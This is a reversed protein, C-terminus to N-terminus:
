IETGGVLDEPGIEPMAELGTVLKSEIKVRDEEIPNFALAKRWQYRAEVERGLRWLM